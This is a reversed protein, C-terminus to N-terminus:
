NDEVGITAIKFELEEGDLFSLIAKIKSCGFPFYPLKTTDIVFNNIFFKGPPMPCLNPSQPPFNSINVLDPYLYQDTNLCTCLNPRNINPIIKRFENGMWGFIEVDMTLNDDLGKTLEFNMNMCFTSRNFKSVRHNFNILNKNSQEIVEIREIRYLIRANVKFILIKNM